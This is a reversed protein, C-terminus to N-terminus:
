ETVIQLSYSSRRTVRQQIFDKITVRQLTVVPPKMWHVIVILEITENNTVRQLSYIFSASGWLYVVRHIKFSITSYYSVEKCLTVILQEKM